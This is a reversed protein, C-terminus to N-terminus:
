ETEKKDGCHPCYKTRHRDTTKKCKDCQLVPFGYDYESTEIWKGMKKSCKDYYILCSIFCVLLGLTFCIIYKAIEVSM